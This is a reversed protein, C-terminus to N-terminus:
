RFARTGCTRQSFHPTLFIAGCWPRPGIAAEGQQELGHHHGHDRGHGTLAPDGPDDALVVSPQPAHDMVVDILRPRAGIGIMRSAVRTAMQRFAGGRPSAM